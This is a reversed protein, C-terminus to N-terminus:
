EKKKKKKGSPHKAEERDILREIIQKRVYNDYVLQYIFYFDQLYEAEEEPLSYEHFAERSKKNEVFLYFYVFQIERQQSVSAM